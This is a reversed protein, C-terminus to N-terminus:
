VISTATLPRCYFHLCLSAIVGLVGAIIGTLHFFGSHCFLFPLLDLIM